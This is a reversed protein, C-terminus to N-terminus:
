QVWQEMAPPRNMSIETLLRRADLRSPSIELVKELERRARDTDGRRLYILGLEFHATENEPSINIANIYHEVTKDYINKASYARAINIHADIDRPMLKLAALYHAIAEETMGKSAYAVGINNHADVDNPKLKLAIRYHRIADDTRGNSWYALGLNYQPRANRPSTSVADEWLSIENKWVGNRSYTASLLVIPILVLFSVFLAKAKKPRIINLLMLLNTSILFFAGVSPLYVRYENIIMMLPIVSSEVSLSVFFWMIGFAIVRLPANGKRSRYYLYLGALFIAILFVFSLIVQPEFFTNFVPYDYDINQNVPLFLLRVYTVIVRFQTFLYDWRSIGAHGGTAPGIASIIEGAPKDMGILTLPIILMTLLIPVLSLIRRKLPGRFFSFEYLTIMLPLTFTNEKTKMALIASLLSLFYFLFGARGGKKNTYPAFGGIVGLADRGLLRSLLGGEGGKVLPPNPPNDKEPPGPILEGEEGGRLKLPPHPVNSFPRAPPIEKGLRWKIYLVLSLLYFFAALSALRQFIYTVAETQVPHSVFILATFLAVLNALLSDGKEFGGGTKFGGKGGKELPPIPPNNEQQPSPPKAGMNILPHSPPSKEKLFPTRFTLAVLFYVLMANMIHISINFIHYGRVDLGHIKYNLAFTLYGIYRGKLAGYLELGEAKSPELFYNLDKIIPNEVIFHEEDWQFPANFTNSYALLGLIVILFIHFLFKGLFDFKLGM